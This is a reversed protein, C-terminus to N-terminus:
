RRFTSVGPPWRHNGVYTAYEEYPLFAAAGGLAIIVGFRPLFASRRQRWAATM